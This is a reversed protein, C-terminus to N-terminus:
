FVVHLHREACGQCVDDEFMHGVNNREGCMRCVAFCGSEDLARRRAAMVTEEGPDESWAEFETWWTRPRHPGEWLVVAVEVRTQGDVEVRRTAWEVMDTDGPQPRGEVGPRVRGAIRVRPAERGETWPPEIWVSADFATWWAQLRGSGKERGVAGVEMVAGDRTTIVRAPPLARPGDDHPEDMGSM